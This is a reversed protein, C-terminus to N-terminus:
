YKKKGKCRLVKWKRAKKWGILLKNCNRFFYQSLHPFFSVLTFQQITKWHSIKKTLLPYFPWHWFMSLIHYWGYWSSVSTDSTTSIFQIVLRNCPRMLSFFWYLTHILTHKCKAKKVSFIFIGCFVTVLNWTLRYGRALPDNKYITMSFKTM